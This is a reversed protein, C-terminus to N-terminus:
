YLVHGHPGDVGAQSPDASMLARDEPRIKSASGKQAGLLFTEFDSPPVFHDIPTATPGRHPSALHPTVIIVLETEDHKFGNSRLLAGLIPIDGLVPFQNITSQYNDSLLGAITFSEGDRLEVTTHANRVKLGPIVSGGLTIGASADLSSVEPNVILNILGDQLVTPTFGLSIGFNKYEVTVSGFGNNVLVPTQGGALFNAPEGTLTTLNPEALTKVLGKTELADIQSLLQGGGINFLATLSEYAGASTGGSGPVANFHSGLAQFNSQLNKAAGRSMEVFRVQLMVQQVGDVTMFNLVNTPIPKGPTIEITKNAYFGAMIVIQSAVLANSVSGSLVISQNALRASVRTENPLLEHLRAKFENINPLDAAQFDPAVVIDYMAVLRHKPGYITVATAGASKGVVYLAHNNLPLVDAIAPDAVMLDTYVGPTELVRSKSKAINIEFGSRDKAAAQNRVQLDVGDTAAAQATLATVASVAAAAIWATLGKPRTM